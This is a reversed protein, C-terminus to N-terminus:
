NEDEKVEKYVSIKYKSSFSRDFIVKIVNVNAIEINRIRNKDIVLKKNSNIDYAEIIKPIYDYVSDDEGVSLIEINLYNDKYEDLSFGISMINNETVIKPTTKFKNHYDIKLGKNDDGPNEGGPLGSYPNKTHSVNDDGTFVTEIINGNSIAGTEKPKEEKKIPEYNVIQIEPNKVISNDQDEQELQIYEEMGDLFDENRIDIKTYEIIKDKIWTMLREFKDRALRKDVARDPDFMDHTPNEIERLFTELSDDLPQFIASFNQDALRYMYDYIKMGHQRFMAVYKGKIDPDKSIILRAKGLGVIDAEETITVYKGLFTNLYYSIYGYKINTNSYEIPIDCYKQVLKEINEATVSEGFVNVQLNKEVIRVFFNEIVAQIMEKKIAMQDYDVGFILVDTGLENRNFISSLGDKDEKYIPESNDGLNKAYYLKREKRDGDIQSTFLRAVGEMAYDNDISKTVYFVTNLESLAFPANKGLGFSGAATESDKQSGGEDYVLAKWQSKPHNLDKSRQVGKTNYDSIKLVRIHDRNLIEMAKNCFTICLPQTCIDKTGNLFKVITDKDPFESSPIDLLDFKITLINGSEPNYADLSNQITERTLFGWKGSKFLETSGDQFISGEATTHRIIWEYNNM